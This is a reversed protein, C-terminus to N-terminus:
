GSSEVEENFVDYHVFICEECDETRGCIVNDNKKLRRFEVVEIRNDKLVPVCDMRSEEALLWKGQVKFYEPYISTAHYNAPAVGDQEVQSVCAEPANTFKESSFDPANYRHLSFAM